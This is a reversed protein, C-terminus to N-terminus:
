RLRRRPDQRRVHARRARSPKWLEEPIEVSRRTQCRVQSGHVIDCALKGAPYRLPVRSQAQVAVSHQEPGGRMVNALRCVDGLQGPRARLVFLGPAFQQEGLVDGWLPGAERPGMRCPRSQVDLEFIQQDAHGVM